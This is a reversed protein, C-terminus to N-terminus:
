TADLGYAEALLEYSRVRAAHDHCISVVVAEDAEYSEVVADLKRKVTDPDGVIMPSQHRTVDTVPFRSPDTDGPRPIGGRRGTSRWIKLSTALHEAAETTEACLVAVGISLQPARVKESPKFQERYANCVAAGDANIFHAWSLPLGFHAAIAASDQSSALLWLEPALDTYPRADIGSLPGDKPVTRHLLQRLEQVM